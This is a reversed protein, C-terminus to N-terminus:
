HSLAMAEIEAVPFPTNVAKAMVALIAVTEKYVHQWVKPPESGVPTIWEEIEDPTGDMSTTGSVTFSAFAPNTATKFTFSVIARTKGDRKVKQIYLDMPFELDANRILDRNVERQVNLSNFQTETNV